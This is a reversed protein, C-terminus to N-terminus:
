ICAEFDLVGHVFVLVLLDVRMKILFLSAQNGM